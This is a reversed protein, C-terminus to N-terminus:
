SLDKQKARRTEWARKRIESFASREAETMAQHKTKLAESIAAGMKAKLEPDSWQRKTNEALKACTAETRPAKPKGKAAASMKARTEESFVKGRMKEKTAEPM